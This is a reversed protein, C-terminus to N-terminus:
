AVGQRIRIAYRGPQQHQDHCSGQHKHKYPTTAKLTSRTSRDRGPFSHIAGGRSTQLSSIFFCTELRARAAAKDAQVTAEAQATAAGATFAAVTAPPESMTCASLGHPGELGQPGPLFFFFFSLPLGQPGELYFDSHGPCNQCLLLGGHQRHRNWEVIRLTAATQGPRCQGAALGQLSQHVVRLVIHDVPIGTCAKEVMRMRHCPINRLLMPVEMQKM